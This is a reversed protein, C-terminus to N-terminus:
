NDITVSDIQTTDNSPPFSDILSHLISVTAALSKELEVCLKKVSETRREAFDLDRKRKTDNTASVDNDSTDSTTADDNEIAGTDAHENPPQVDGDVSLATSSARPSASNPVVFENRSTLDIAESDESLAAPSARDEQNLGAGVPDNKTSHKGCPVQPCFFGM